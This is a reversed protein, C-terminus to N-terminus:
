SDLRRCVSCLGEDPAALLGAGCAGASDELLLVAGDLVQPHM